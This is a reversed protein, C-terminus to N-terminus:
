IRGALSELQRSERKGTATAATPRTSQVLFITRSARSLPRRSSKIYAMAQWLHTTDMPTSFYRAQWVHGPARNRLNYYRAYDANARGMAQAMAPARRLGAILHIHNPMLCFAWIELGVDQCNTQLLDRYLASNRDEFVVQQRTTGRQTIHSPIGEIAIRSM